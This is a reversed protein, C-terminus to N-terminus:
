RVTGKNGNSRRVTSSTINSTISSRISPEQLTSSKATGTSINNINSLRGQGEKSRISTKSVRGSNTRSMPPVPKRRMPVSGRACSDNPIRPPEIGQDLPNDELPSLGIESDGEDKQM